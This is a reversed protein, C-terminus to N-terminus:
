LFENKLYESPNNTNKFLKTRDIKEEKVPQIDGM